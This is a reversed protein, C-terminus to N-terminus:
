FSVYEAFFALAKANVVPVIIGGPVLTSFCQISFSLYSETVIPDFSQNSPRFLIIINYSIGIWWVFTAM